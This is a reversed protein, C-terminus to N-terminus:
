YEKINKYNLSVDEPMFYGESANIQGMNLEKFVKRYEVVIGKLFDFNPRTEQMASGTYEWANDKRYGFISYNISRYFYVNGQYELKFDGVNKSTNLIKDPNKVLFGDTNAYLLEGNCYEIAQKLLRTTRQVIWNYAGEYGEHKLYGVFLNFLSKVRKKDEKSKLKLKELREFSKKCKPFMETLADQHAGNIDFKYCNTIHYIVNDFDFQEFIYHYQILESQKKIKDYSHLIEYFEKETYSNLIISRMQEWCYKVSYAREIGNVNNNLQLVVQTYTNCGPFCNYIYDVLYEPLIMYKTTEIDILYISKTDGTIYKTGYFYRYKDNDEVRIFSAPFTKKITNFVEENVEYIRLRKCAM